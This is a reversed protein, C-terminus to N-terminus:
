YLPSLRKRAGPVLWQKGTWHLIQSVESEAVKETEGVAWCNSGSTCSVGTLTNFAGAGSALNRTFATLWHSGNWHL